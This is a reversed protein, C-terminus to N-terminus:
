PLPRYDAPDTSCTCPGPLTPATYFWWCQCGGATLDKSGMEPVYGSASATYAYVGPVVCYRGRGDPPLVVRGSQPGNLDLTLEVSLWNFIEVLAWDPPCVGPTPTPIPTPTPAPVVILVYAREGIPAGDPARVQWIGKYTGPAAPAVLSVSLDVTKGLPVEPIPVQDPGGMAEGEVFSWVSGAPWPACGDSVMRWTKVFTEGPSFETGDPVTVDAVFSAHPRCPTPTPTATPLPTATPAPRATATPRPMRTPTATPRPTATPIPPPTATPTATFAAAEATQTAFIEAAIATAQADRDIPSSLCASLLLFLAAELVVFGKARSMSARRKEKPRRRRIPDRGGDEEVATRVLRKSCRGFGAFVTFIRGRAM